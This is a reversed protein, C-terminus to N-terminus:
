YLPLTRWLHKDKTFFGPPELPGQDVEEIRTQHCYGCTHERTVPEPKLVCWRVVIATENPWRNAMTEKLFELAEEETDGSRCRFEYRQHEQSAPHWGIIWSKM